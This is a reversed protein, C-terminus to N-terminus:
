LPKCAAALLWCGPLLALLLLQQMVSKCSALCPQGQEEQVQQCSTHNGTHATNHGGAPPPPPPPAPRKGPLGTCAACGPCPMLGSVVVVVVLLRLLSTSHGTCRRLASAAAAAAAVAAAFAHLM